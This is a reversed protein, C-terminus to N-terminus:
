MALHTGTSPTSHPLSPFYQRMHKCGESRGIMLKCSYCQKWNHETAMQWLQEDEPNKPWDSGPHLQGKCLTCTTTQCSCTATQDEINVPPIWLGCAPLHCYTREGAPTALEDRKARYKFALEEGLVEVVIPLPQGCYGHPLTSADDRFSVDLAKALCENCWWHTNGAFPTSESVPFTERCAICNYADEDHTHINPDMKVVSQQSNNSPIITDLELTKQAITWQNVSGAPFLSRTYFNTSSGTILEIRTLHNSADFTQKISFPPAFLTHHLAKQSSTQYVTPLLSWTSPGESAPSSPRLWPLLGQPHPVQQRSSSRSCPRM